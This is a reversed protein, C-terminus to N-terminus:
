LVLLHKYSGQMHLPLSEVYDKMCKKSCVFDDHIYSYLCLGIKGIGCGQCTLRYPERSTVDELVLKMNLRHEVNYEHILDQLVKPLRDILVLLKEM